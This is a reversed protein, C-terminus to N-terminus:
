IFTPKDKIPSTNQYTDLRLKDDSVILKVKDSDEKFGESLDIRGYGATKFINNKYFATKFKNSGKGSYVIGQPFIRDARLWGFNTLFQHNPTCTIPAYFANSNFRYLDGFYERSMINNVQRMRNKDTLVLDGIKVDKIKILGRNTFVTADETFCNSLSGSDLGRNALTRGGFLFKKKKILEALEKDGGSVRKFWEDLSESNQRYKKEWIDIGLSDNNLWENVTM